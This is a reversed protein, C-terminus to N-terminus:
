FAIMYADLVSILCDKDHWYGIGMVTKGVVGSILVVMMRIIFLNFPTLLVAM